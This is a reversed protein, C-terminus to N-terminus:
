SAQEELRRRIAKAVRACDDPFRHSSNGLDPHAHVRVRELSTATEETGHDTLIQFLVDRTEKSKHDSLFVCSRLLDALENAPLFRDVIRRMLWAASDCVKLDDDDESSEFRRACQRAWTLVSPVESPQLSKRRLMHSVQLVRNRYVAHPTDKAISNLIRLLDDPGLKEDSDLLSLLWSRAVSGVAADYVLERLRERCDSWFAKDPKSKQYMRLVSCAPQLEAIPLNVFCELTERVVRQKESEYEQKPLAMIARRCAWRVSPASTSLEARRKLKKFLSCRASVDLVRLADAALQMDGEAAFLEFLVLVQDYSELVGKMASTGARVESRLYETVEGALTGVGGSLCTDILFRMADKDRARSDMIARALIPMYGCERIQMKVQPLKTVRLAARLWEPASIAACLAGIDLSDPPIINHEVLACLWAGALDDCGAARLRQVVDCAEVDLGSLVAPLAAGPRDCELLLTRALVSLQRSGDEDPYAAHAGLGPSRLMEQAWRTTQEDAAGLEVARCRLKFGRVQDGRRECADAVRHAVEAARCRDGAAMRNLRRGCDDAIEPQTEVLLDLVFSPLQFLLDLDAGSQKGYSFYDRFALALQSALRTALEKSLDSNSSLIRAILRTRPGWQRQGFLSGEAIHEGLVASALSKADEAPLLDLAFALASDLLPLAEERLEPTLDLLRRDRQQKALLDGVFYDRLSDHIFSYRDGKGEPRLFGHRCVLDAVNAPEDCVLRQESLGLGRGALEYMFLQELVSENPAYSCKVIAELDARDIIFTRRDIMALAIGATKERIVAREAPTLNHARAGLQDPFHEVFYGFLRGPAALATRPTPGRAASLRLYQGLLFMFLPSRPLMQKSHLVSVFRELFGPFVHGLASQLYGLTMAEGQEGSLDGAQWTECPQDHFLSRQDRLSLTQSRCMAVIVHGGPRSRCCGHQRAFSSLLQATIERDKCTSIRDLDVFLVTPPMYGLLSQRRNASEQLSWWLSGEEPSFDRVWAALQLPAKCNSGRGLRKSADFFHRFPPKGELIDFFARVCATTKGSGTSGTILLLPIGREYSGSIVNPLSVTQADIQTLGSGLKRFPIDIYRPGIHGERPYLFDGLREWPRDHVDEDPLRLLELGLIEEALRGGSTLERVHGRLFTFRPDAHTNGLSRPEFRIGM